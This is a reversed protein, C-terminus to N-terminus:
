EWSYLWMISMSGNGNVFLGENTATFYGESGGCHDTYPQCGPMINIWTQNDVTGTYNVRLLTNSSDITYYTYSYSGGYRKVTVAGRFDATAASFRGATGSAQKKWGGSQCILEQHLELCIPIYPYLGSNSHVGCPVSYLSEVRRMQFRLCRGNCWFCFWLDCWITSNFGNGAEGLSRIPLIAIVM